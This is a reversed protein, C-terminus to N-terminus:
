TLHLPARRMVGRRWNESTAKVDIKASTSGKAAMGVNRTIVDCLSRDRRRWM